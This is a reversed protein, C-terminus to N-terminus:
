EDQGDQFHTRASWLRKDECFRHIIAALLKLRESFPFHSSSLVNHQVDASSASGVNSTCHHM